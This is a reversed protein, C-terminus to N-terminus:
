FFYITIIRKEEAECLIRRLDQNNVRVERSHSNKDTFVENVDTTYMSVELCVPVILVKM